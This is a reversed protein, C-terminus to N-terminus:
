KGGTAAPPERGRVVLDIFQLKEVVPRSMVFPYFDRQGLSRALENLVTVMEVWSNILFLFREANRDEPDYLDAPSFPEIETELDEADLGHAVATALSDALHLYHAWTEAWDEWPHASAYASIHRNPWDPPPGQEYNKRLAAAYDAREDGFLARYPELWASDRILRDWYYHGIEHRFHGLLTRYPEHMATRIAERKADDAEEVNLTILGDAHGTLVASGDGLPRLLDFALGHRPNELKSEVPLGMQLLQAILRAKASEIARWYRRNDADSLDPLTRNLRCSVCLPNDDDSPVLWNCGAPATFNACRRYAQQATREGGLHWSNPTDGAHLTRVEGVRPAYGLAAGCGLCHSNRFFVPRGCECRFARPSRAQHHAKWQTQLRTVISDFWAM